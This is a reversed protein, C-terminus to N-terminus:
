ATMDPVNNPPGPYPQGPFTRLWTRPSKRAKERKAKIGARALELHRQARLRILLRRAEQYEKDAENQAEINAEAIAEAKDAKAMWALYVALAECILKNKYTHERIAMIKFADHIGRDLRLTVNVTPRTSLLNTIKSVNDTNSVNIKPVNGNKRPRGRGRKTTSPVSNETM